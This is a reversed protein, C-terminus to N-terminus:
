FTSLTCIMVNKTFKAVPNDSPQGSSIQIQAAWNSGGQMKKISCGM